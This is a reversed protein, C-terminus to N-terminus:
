LVLKTVAQCSDASVELAIIIIIIFLYVFEESKM